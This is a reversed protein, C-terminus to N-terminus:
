NTSHSIPTSRSLRPPLRRVASHTAGRRELAPRFEPMFAQADLSLGAAMPHGGFTTLLEQQTAIAATIHVGDVSRASGRALEGPPAVLVVAPKHFREVLRSAVIGLVGAPWSPHALVLAGMEALSPDM